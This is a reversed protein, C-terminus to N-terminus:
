RRTHKVKHVKGRIIIKQSGPTSAFVSKRGKKAKVGRKTEM